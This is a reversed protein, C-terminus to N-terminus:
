GQTTTSSTTSSWLANAPLKILAAGNANLEVVDFKAVARYLNLPPNPSWDAHLEVDADPAPRFWPTVAYLPDEKMAMLANDGVNPAMVIAAYVPDAGWIDSSGILVQEFPLVTRLLAAIADSQLGLAAQAAVVGGIAGSAQLRTAVSELGCFALFWKHSCVLSLKGAVRTVNEAVAGIIQLEKGTALEPAASKRGDSFITAYVEQEFKRMISRKAAKAGAADANEIGGLHKADDETLGYVKEYRVTAFSKEAPAVQVVTRATNWGVNEQPDADATVVQCTFTGASENVQIPPALFRAIYGIPWNVELKALDPRDGITTQRYTPM